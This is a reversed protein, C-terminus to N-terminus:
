DLYLVHDPDDCCTLRKLEGRSLSEMLEARSRIGTLLRIDRLYHEVTKASLNLKEGIEANTMGPRLVELLARHRQPLDPPRRVRWGLCGDRVLAGLERHLWALGRRDNDSFLGDGVRRLLVLKQYADPGLARPDASAVRALYSVIATEIRNAEYFRPLLEWSLSNSSRPTLTHLTTNVV